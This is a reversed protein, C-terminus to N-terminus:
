AITYRIIVIGSGGNPATQASGSSNSGGGTGGGTNITGATALAGNSTAGAGGGGYGGAGGGSGNSSGGGGGAYYYTGSVNQGTNTAAGWSSYASTGVGGAALGSTGNGGAGGAGGGGGSYFSGGTGANGGANGQGSTGSAGTGSNTTGGSGSGGIIGNNSINVNPAAGGGVAATLASFQSNVGNTATVTLVYSSNITGGSGGAGVTVAYSQAIVSQSALYSVGGAGAGGSSASSPNGGGGGAVQLIDCSLSVAPVFAGTTLFTHYWYTGDTTINGGSAKPAIVPTTGVAALGYLSFTSYQALSGAEPTITVANIAATNSWLGASINMYAASTNDENVGDISVSKYNSSLYNPVYIETNSFTNATAGTPDIGIIRIATSLSPNGTNSSATSGDGRLSITSYSSTNSNFTIRFANEAGQRASLVVKLDTYGSQPINSFTVSAASANLEIRELLVYNAAM